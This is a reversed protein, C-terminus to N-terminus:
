APTFVALVVFRLKPRLLTCCLAILTPLRFLTLAELEGVRGEVGALATSRDSEFLLKGSSEYVPQELLAFVASLSTIGVCAVTALLWRRKLILWYKQFDIDGEYEKPEM